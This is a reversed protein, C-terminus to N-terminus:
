TQKKNSFILGEEECVSKNQLNQSELTVIVRMTLCTFFCVEFSTKEDIFCNLQWCRVGCNMFGRVLVGCVEFLTEGCM